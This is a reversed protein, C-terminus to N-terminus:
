SIGVVNHQSQKTKCKVYREKVIVVSHISYIFIETLRSVHCDFSPKFICRDQMACTNSGRTEHSRVVGRDRKGLPLVVIGSGAGITKLKGNRNERHPM